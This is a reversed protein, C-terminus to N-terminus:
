EARLGGISVVARRLVEVAWRVYAGARGHVQATAAIMADEYLTDSQRHMLKAGFRFASTDMPLVNYAAALLDLWTEIEAAKADQVTWKIGPSFM